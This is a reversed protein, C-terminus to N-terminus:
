GAASPAPDEGPVLWAPVDRLLGHQAMDSTGGSAPGFHFCVILHPRDQLLM